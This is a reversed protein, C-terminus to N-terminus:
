AGPTACKCAAKCAGMRVAAAHRKTIIVATVATWAERERPAIKPVRGARLPGGGPCAPKIAGMLVLSGLMTSVSVGVATGKKKGKKKKRKGGTGEEEEEEEEKEEERATMNRASKERGVRALRAM